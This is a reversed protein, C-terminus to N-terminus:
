NLFNRLLSYGAQTLISEPHFQVGYVPYHLHSIAMIQNKECRATVVLEAPFTETAIILSHYRGVLLPNSIGAFLKDGTHNILAAKGHMPEIARIIKGGFAHGIAQHGLCIGLIPITKYFYNILALSIGAEYPTCPGPSIVIHSPALQKIQELDVADNRVVQTAFGLERIYRAINHVFSDYNDILLIM